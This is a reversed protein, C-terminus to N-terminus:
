GAILKTHSQCQFTNRFGTQRALLLPFHEEPVLSKESVNICLVWSALVYAHTFLQLFLLVAKLIFRHHIKKLYNKEQIM